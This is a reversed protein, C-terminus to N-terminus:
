ALGRLDMLPKRSNWKLQGFVPERNTYRHKVEERRLKDGIAELLPERGDRSV